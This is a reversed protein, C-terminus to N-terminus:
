GPSPAPHKLRAHELLSLMFESISRYREDNINKRRHDKELLLQAPEVIEHYVQDVPKHELEKDLIAEAEEKDMALLRQYFREHSELPPEASLATSIFSLPPFYKAMVALCVTMPIALLLGASGWMMTWFFAALLVAFSTIGTNAGYLWPEIAYAVTLELVVFLSAVYLPEYWSGTAFSILLPATMAIWSGIYPIYRLIAALIGWLLPNPVRLAFLSLGVLTGFILNVALQAFLYRSIRQRADTMARTTVILRNQGALSILRDRLDDRQILMFIVLIAAIGLTALPGLLPGVITRILDLGTISVPAPAQSSQQPPHSMFLHPNAPHASSTGLAENVFEQITAATTRLFGTGTQIARLKEQITDRYAQLNNALDGVQDIVLLGIGGVLAAILVVVVLVALMRALGRHELWQVVPVVLLSVLVALAFPIFFEKGFYLALVVIAFSVLRSSQWIVTSRRM